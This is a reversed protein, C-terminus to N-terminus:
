LHPIHVIEGEALPSGDQHHLLRFSEPHWTYIAEHTYLLYEAAGGTLPFGGEVWDIAPEILRAWPLRGFRQSALALGAFAGTAITGYGVRQHTEGGYDFSVLHTAGGLHAQPLGRGPMEVYGDVVVPEGDPPWVTVFAGGGPAMIGLDTCMSVIMAAIGADVSNGGKAAVAAGAEAAIRTGAAM